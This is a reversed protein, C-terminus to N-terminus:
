TPLDKISHVALVCEGAMLAERLASVFVGTGGLQALSERSVDGHTTITVLAVECGTAAAVTEAVTTTQAIALRSGRTGIRLLGNRAPVPGDARFVRAAPSSSLSM